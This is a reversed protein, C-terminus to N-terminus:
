LQEKEGKEDSEGEQDEPPVLYVGCKFSEWIFTRFHILLAVILIFVITVLAVVLVLLTLDQGPTNMLLAQDSLLLDIKANAVNIDNGIGVFLEQVTNTSNPQLLLHIKVDAGSVQVFTVDKVLTSENLYPSTDMVYKDNSLLKFIVCQNNCEEVSSIKVFKPKPWSQVQIEYRNPELRSIQEILPSMQFLLNFGPSRSSLHIPEGGIGAYSQIQCELSHNFHDRTLTLNITQTGDVKLAKGNLYWQYTQGPPPTKPGSSCKYSAPFSTQLQDM